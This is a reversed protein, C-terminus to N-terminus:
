RARRRRVHAAAAVQRHREHVQPGPGPLQGDRRPRASLALHLARSEDREHDAAGGRVRRQVGDDLGPLRRRRARDPARRQHDGAGRPLGERAHARGDDRQVLVDQRARDAHRRDPERRARRQPPPERDRRLDHLLERRRGHDGDGESRGALARGEDHRVALTATRATPSVAAALLAKATAPVDM